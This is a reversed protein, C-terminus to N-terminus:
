RPEGEGGTFQQLGARAAPDVRTGPADVGRVGPLGLLVPAVLAEHCAPRGPCGACMGTYRVTPVAGDAVLELGGGHGRMTRSLARVADPVNM